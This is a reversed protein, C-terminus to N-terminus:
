AKNSKFEPKTVTISLSPKTIGGLETKYSMINKNVDPM